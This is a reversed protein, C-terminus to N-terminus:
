SLSEDIQKKINRLDAEACIFFPDSDIGEANELSGHEDILDQAEDDTLERWFEIGSFGAQDIIFKFYKNKM